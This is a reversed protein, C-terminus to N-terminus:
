PGSGIQMPAIFLQGVESKHESWGRAKGGTNLHEVLYTPSEPEETCPPGLTCPGLVEGLTM